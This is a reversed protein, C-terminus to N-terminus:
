TQWLQRSALEAGESLAQLKAWAIKPDVRFSETGAVTSFGCDVGAIINERGLVRAYRRIREAVVEPHEIINTTSDIVGPIIVKGDPLKVDEWVRWEHEHRGNAGVITMGAATVTLLLDVIDKLEIDLHHPGEDSGWCMHIRSQEAPIDALAYNLVEIQLEVMKRADRVSDAGRFRRSSVGMPCDVQLVFGADVIARYERKLADALAYMYAEPSPYYRGPQFSAATAPSASSMFVDEIAFGQNHTAAKLSAIDRKVEGFDKWSIPGVCYARRFAQRHFPREFFEPFDDAEALSLRPSVEGRELEEFGNLRDKLYGSYSIKSSEGDNVVTIGAAVQQHVVEDVAHALMPDFVSRELSDGNSRDVLLKILEPPRALSGSHTTLIRDTSRKM